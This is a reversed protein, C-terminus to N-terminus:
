TMLNHKKFIILPTGKQHVEKKGYEQNKLPVKGINIILVFDCTNYLENYLPPTLNSYMYGNEM